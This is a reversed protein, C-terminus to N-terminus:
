STPTGQHFQLRWAGDERRWISSRLRVLNGLQTRYTVLALDSSLLRAAFESITAASGDPEIALLTILDDLTYTRGSAGIEFFDEHIISRLCEASHRVEPLMLARELELLDKAVSDSTM